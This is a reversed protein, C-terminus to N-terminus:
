STGNGSPIQSEAPKSSLTLPTGPPTTAAALVKWSVTRIPTGVIGELYQQQYTADTRESTLVVYDYSDPNERLWALPHIPVGLLLDNHRHVNSDLCAVVDVGHRRADMVMLAAVLVSGFIVLRASGPLSAFLSKGSDVAVAWGHFAQVDPKLDSPYPLPVDQHEPLPGINPSLKAALYIPLAIALAKPSKQGDAFVNKYLSVLARREKASPGPNSSSSLLYQLKHKAIQSDFLAEDIPRGPIKRALKKLDSFLHISPRLLDTKHTDQNPHIRYRLLPRDLFAISHRINIRAPLDVDGAGAYDRENRVKPQLTQFYHEQAYHPPALRREFMVTSPWPWLREYLFSEIFEGPPFIRAEGSFHAGPDIERGQPDIRRVNTWVLKVEPHEDMLAMQEALMTPEMVDDDHTGIVRWGTAIHHAAHNNFNMSTGVANRVYRIRPDDVSLVVEATEDTSGGDLILFEFDTYTQRRIAAIAERLYSGARNFTILAVTLKVPGHSMVRNRITPFPSRPEM